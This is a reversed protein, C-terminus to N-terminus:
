IIAQKFIVTCMFDREHLYTPAFASRTVTIKLVTNLSSSSTMMPLTKMCTFNQQLNFNTLKQRM